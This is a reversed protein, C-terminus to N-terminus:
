QDVISEASKVLDLIYKEMGNRRAKNLIQTYASENMEISWDKLLQSPLIHFIDALKHAVEIQETARIELLVFRLMTILVEKSPFGTIDTGDNSM